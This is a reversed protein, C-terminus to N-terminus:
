FCCILTIATLVTCNLKQAKMNVHPAAPLQVAFVNVVEVASYLCVRVCVALRVSICWVRM